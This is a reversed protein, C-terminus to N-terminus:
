CFLATLWLGLPPLAVSFLLAAWGSHPAWRSCVGALSGCAFMAVLFQFETMAVVGEAM